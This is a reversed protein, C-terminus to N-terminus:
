HSSFVKPPLSEVACLCALPSIGVSGMLNMFLIVAVPFWQFSSIDFGLDSAYSYCAFSTLGITCGVMSVVIMFKRGLRDALQTSFICGITLVSAILVTSINTNMEPSSKEVLPVAYNMIAKNGTVIVLVIVVTAIM